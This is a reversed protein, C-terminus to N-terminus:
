NYEGAEIASLYPDRGYGGTLEGVPAYMDSLQPFQEPDHSDSMGLGLNPAVKPLVEGLLINSGTGVLVMGAARAGLFKKALLSMGVGLAAKAVARKLPTDAFKALQPTRLALQPLVIGAAVAASDKAVQAVHIGRVTLPPNHRRRRAHHRRRPPNHAVKRHRRKRAMTSEKGAGLGLAAFKASVHRRARRRGVGVLAARRHRPAKRITVSLDRRKEYWPNRRTRRRPKNKAAARKKAWYRALAAPMRRRRSM